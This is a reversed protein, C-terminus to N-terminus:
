PALVGSDGEKPKRKQGRRWGERKGEDTVALSAMYADLWPQTTLQVRNSVKLVKLRGAKAAARLSSGSLYGARHAAETLTIYQPM